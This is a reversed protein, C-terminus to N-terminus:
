KPPPNITGGCKKWNFQSKKAIAIALEQYAPESGFSDSNLAIDIYRERLPALAALCGAANGLHFETIALDNRKNALDPWHMWERCSELRQNVAIKAKAYDKAAYNKAFERENRKAQACIAPAIAYDGAFWARNGCHNRCQEFTAQRPAVTLQGNKLNFDILCGQDTKAVGNKIVGDADCVHANAGEAHLVFASGAKIELRAGGHRQEYVGSPISQAISQALAGTSVICFFLGNLINKM